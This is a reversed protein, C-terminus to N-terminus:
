LNRCERLILVIVNFVYIGTTPNKFYKANQKLIQGSTMGAPKTACNVHPPKVVSKFPLVVTGSCFMRKIRCSNNKCVTGNKGVNSKM